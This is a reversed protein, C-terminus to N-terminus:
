SGLVELKFQGNVVNDQNQVTLTTIGSTTSTSCRVVTGWTNDADFKEFLASVVNGSVTMTGSADGASGTWTGSILRRSPGYYQINNVTSSFAM